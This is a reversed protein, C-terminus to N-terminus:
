WDSYHSIKGTCLQWLAISGSLKAEVTNKGILFCLKVLLLFEKRDLKKSFTFFVRSPFAVTVSYVLFQFAM